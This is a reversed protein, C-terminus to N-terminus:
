LIVYSTYPLLKSKLPKLNRIDILSRVAEGEQPFLPHSYEDFVLITGAQSRTLVARLAEFTPKFLDMDFICMAITEYPNDKLWRPLTEIVDGKVLEHRHMHSMASFAQHLSLCQDILEQIGVMTSLDNTNWGKAQELDSLSGEPFGEFTDFGVLKRRFNYPDHISILNYLVSTLAGWQIGLELVAGPINSIDSILQSYFLIKSLSIRNMCAASAVWNRENQFNCEQLYVDRIHELEKLARKESESGGMSPNRNQLM